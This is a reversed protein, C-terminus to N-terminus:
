IFSYFTTMRKYYETKFVLSDILSERSVRYKLKFNKIIMFLEKWEKVSDLYEKWQYRLESKIEFKPYFQKNKLIITEYARRGIEISANIPDFYDHQLNYM